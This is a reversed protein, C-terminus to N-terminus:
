QFSLHVVQARQGIPHIGLNFTITGVHLDGTLFVVHSENQLIQELIRAFIITWATANANRAALLTLPRNDRDAVSTAGDRVRSPFVDKLAEVTARDPFINRAM